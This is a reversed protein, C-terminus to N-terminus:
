MGVLDLLDVVDASYERSDLNDDRRSPLVGSRFRRLGRNSRAANGASHMAQAGDAVNAVDQPLELIAPTTPATPGDFRNASSSGAPRASSPAGEVITQMYPEVTSQRALDVGPTELNTRQPASLSRRRTAVADDVQPSELDAFDSTASVPRTTSNSSPLRRIRINSPRLSERSPQRALHRGPSPLPANLREQTVTSGRQRNGHTFYDM